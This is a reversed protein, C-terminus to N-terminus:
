HEDPLALEYERALVTNGLSELSYHAVAADRESCLILGVPPNEDPNVWHKRAYNLYLNMQGADAHTFKGVKLEVILLSRLRRHFFLLDVRYWETGIRLRKQRAVFAFDNGLELLFRELELILAQELDSESYEDKLNLFELVFPDRIHEEPNLGGPSSSTVSNGPKGRLRQYAKTAIQRDLDRVSWGGRLAEHEYYDRAANDTVTLLRVYHSWSLLFPGDFQGSLPQVIGGAGLLGSV